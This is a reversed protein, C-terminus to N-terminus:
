EATVVWFRGTSGRKMVFRAEHATVGGFPAKAKFRLQVDFRTADDRQAEIRTVTFDALSDPLRLRARVLPQTHTIAEQVTPAVPAETSARAPVLMATCLVLAILARM